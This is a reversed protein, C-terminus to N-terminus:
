KTDNPLYIRDYAENLLRDYSPSIRDVFISKIVVKENSAKGGGIEEKKESIIITDPVGKIKDLISGVESDVREGEKCISSLGEIAADRELVCRDRETTVKSLNVTLVGVLDVQKSYSVKYYATSAGLLLTLAVFLGLVYKM